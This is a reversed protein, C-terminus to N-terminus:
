RLLPQAYVYVWRKPAPAGRTAPPTARKNSSANSHTTIATPPTPTTLCKSTSVACSITPARHVRIINTQHPQLTLSVCTMLFATSHSTHHSTWPVARHQPHHHQRRQSVSCSCCCSACSAAIHVTPLSAQTSCSTCYIAPANTKVSNKYSHQDAHQDVLKCLVCAVSTCLTWVGHCLLFVVGCIGWAIGQWRVTRAAFVM